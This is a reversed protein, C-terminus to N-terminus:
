CDLLGHLLESPSDYVVRAGTEYLEDRTRFGWLVGMAFFGAAVATKMDTNTDGVYAIRDAPVGIANAIWLSSAPDPKKPFRESHGVVFSFSITPFFFDACRRTFAEPKNSLIAMPLRACTLSNLLESIGDYPKSRKNWHQDYHRDFSAISAARLREDSATEPMLREMLVAVGDGVLTRYREVPVVHRGFEVLVENAAHAIDELSDILTGDLDFIVAGFMPESTRRTIEMLRM